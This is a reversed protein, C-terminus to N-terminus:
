DDEWSLPAYWIDNKNPADPESDQLYITSYVVGVAVGKYTLTDDDDDLAELVAMNDHPHSADVAADIDSPDSSPKGDIEDWVLSIEQAGGAKYLFKWYLEEGTNASENWALQYYGVGEFDQPLTPEITPDTTLDILTAQTGVDSEDFASLDDVMEQYSDYVWPKTKGALEAKTAYTGDADNALNTLKTAQGSTLHIAADGTHTGLEAKTAYTADADTDLNALKSIDGSTKHLDPDTSHDSLDGEIEGLKTRLTKTGGEVYILDDTTPHHIEIWALGNWIIHKRQLAAM